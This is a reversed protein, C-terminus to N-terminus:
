IVKVSSKVVSPEFNFLSSKYCTESKPTKHATTISLSIMEYKKKFVKTKKPVKFFKDNFIVRQYGVLTLPHNVLSEQM